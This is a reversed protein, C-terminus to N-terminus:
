YSFSLFGHVLFALILLHRKMYELIPVDCYKGDANGGDLARRGIPHFRTKKVIEKADEIGMLHPVMIGAADMEFPRIYDSYSGRQIRVLLDVDYAKCTYVQREIVSFDNPAHEMDTWLCDFGNMAAIECARQDSLNIKFCSVVDGSRLKKLVRSERMKM